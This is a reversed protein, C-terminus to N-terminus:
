RGHTGPELGRLLKALEDLMTIEFWDLKVLATLPIDLLQQLTCFGNGTAASKFAESLSLDSISSHLLDQLSTGMIRDLFRLM